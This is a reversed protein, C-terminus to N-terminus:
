KILTMKRSLKLDNNTLVYIYNGSALKSADFTVRYSGKAFNTNQILTSVLEGNISYVSLTIEADQPLSFEITTSPNFPNPYNQALTFQNPILNEDKEIGVILLPIIPITGSFQWKDVTWGYFSQNYVNFNEDFDVNYPSTYGSVTGLTGGPRSSWSGTMLFNWLACDITDLKEGTNPNVAYIRGYQYGAGLQFNNACSVFLINKNDMFGLGWPGPNLLAGTTARMTDNAISFDFGNYLTYGTTPSGTYCYVVDMDYNSVYLVSGNSNVAVGRTRGTDPVTITQIPTLSHSIGWADPEQSIGKYVLVKGKEPPLAITTVYVYGNDDVDIAWLSDANTALRYETSIVSDASMRFVLINRDPDNNAVFILSDKTAAIDFAYNMNVADFGSSWQMIINSAYEYYGMRGNISDANTYGVLYCYDALPANTSPPYDTVLAVFTNEKIVGLSATNYGTANPQDDITAYLCNWDGIFAQSKTIEFPSIILFTLFLIFPSLSSKM